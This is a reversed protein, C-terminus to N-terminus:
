LIIDETAPVNEQIVPELFGNQFDPCVIDCAVIRGRYLLVNAYVPAKANPHNTVPYTYKQLTKGLYPVLTLGQRNQLEEYEKSFDEPNAPLTMTEKFFTKNGTKWGYQELFRRRATHSYYHESTVMSIGIGLLLIVTLSIALLFALKEKTLTVSYILM